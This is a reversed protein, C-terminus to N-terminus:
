LAYRDCLVSSRPALCTQVNVKIIIISTPQVEVVCVIRKNSRCHTHNAIHLPAISAYCLNIRVRVRLQIKRTNAIEGEVEM